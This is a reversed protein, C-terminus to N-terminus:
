GVTNVFVPRSLSHVLKNRLIKIQILIYFVMKWVQKHYNWPTYSSISAEKLSVLRVSAMQLGIGFFTYFVRWFINIISILISAGSLVDQWDVRGLIASGYNIATGTWVQVFNQTRNRSWNRILVVNLVTRWCCIKQVFDQSKFKMLMILDWFTLRVNKKSKGTGSLCFTSNQEVVCCFHVNSM